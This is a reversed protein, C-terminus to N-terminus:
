EELVCDKKLYKGTLIYYIEKHLSIITEEYM